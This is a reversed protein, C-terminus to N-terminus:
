HVTISSTTGTISGTGTGTATVTQGGITKLKVTFSRTGNRLQASAPLVALADSSTIGVTGTYATDLNNYDDRASVTVPFAIGVSASAPGTVMLHTAPAPSVVVANSASNRGTAVDNATVRRSGATKLTVYFAGVGNVLTADAPLDASPDSSTIHVTGTYGTATNGITDQATVSVTIPSGAVTTSPATVIFKAMNAVVDITWTATLAPNATDTVTVTQTGPTRLKLSFSRAGNVLGADAPLLALPDSSTIHVTGKYGIVLNGFTDKSKVAITVPTATACTAPGTATLQSTFNPATIVADMHGVLVPQAIDNITIRQKGATKFTATFSGTGNSLSSDAPLVAQPDTSSFHVPGEYIGVVNGFRDEAKITFEIPQGAVATKPATVVFIAPLLDVYCFSTGTISPDSVITATVSFPGTTRLKMPLQVMGNVLPADAPIVAQPDDSTVHVTGTFSPDINGYSDIARVLLYFPEGTIVGEPMQTDLAVTKGVFVRIQRSEGSISGDASDATIVVQNGATGLIASFTGTGNTLSSTGPLDASFDSSDFNVPGTYSTAIHDTSDYATVTFNFPNGAIVSAPATVIFHTVPYSVNIAGSTGTVKLRGSETASVTQNGLTQLTAVFTGVGNSLTTDAPLSAAADTSTFHVTGAYNTDTNGFDDQAVVNVNFAQGPPILAPASVSLTTAPAPSVDISVYAQLSPNSSDEVLLTQTGASRFTLSLTQTGLTLATDAPNTSQSDSTSIHTPTNYNTALNGYQDVAQVDFTFPVGATATSPANISYGVPAAAVPNIDNSTGTISSNSSDTVTITQGPSTSFFFASMQRQGQVVIDFSSIITSAVTTTVNVTHTYTTDTSNDAKLATVQYLVQQGVVPSAPVVVSFHTTATVASAPAALALTFAVVAAPLTQWLKIARTLRSCKQAARAIATQALPKSQNCSM